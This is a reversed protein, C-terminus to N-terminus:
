LRDEIGDGFGGFLTQAVGAGINEGAHAVRQLLAQEAQGGIEAGVFVVIQRRFRFFLRGVPMRNRAGTKQLASAQCRKTVARHTRGSQKTPVLSSEGALPLTKRQESNKRARRRDPSALLAMGFTLEAMRNVYGGDRRERRRRPSFGKGAARATESIEFEWNSIRKQGRRLSCNTRSL